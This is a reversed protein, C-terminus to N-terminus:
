GTRGIGDLAAVVNAHAAAFAAPDPDSAGVGFVGPNGIADLAQKLGDEITKRKDEPLDPAMAQYFRQAKVVLVKSTQYDKLNDKAGALRREIEDAYARMLAQHLAGADKEALADAFVKAIGPDDNEDLYTLDAKMGDLAAQAADWDGKAAASMLAERGDLLPEAGAAAYSYAEARGAWGAVVLILAALITTFRM